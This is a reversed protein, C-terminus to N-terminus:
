RFLLIVGAIAAIATAVLTAWLVWHPKALQDVSAKLKELETMTEEHHDKGQVMAEEHKSHAEIQARESARRKIEDRISDITPDFVRSHPNSACYRLCAQLLAGLEEDGKSILRGEQAAQMAENMQENFTM